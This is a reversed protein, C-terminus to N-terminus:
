LEEILANWTKVGCIGDQTLGAKAQFAKIASFMISDCRNKVSTMYGLKKLKRSLVTVSAGVTGYRVTPLFSTYTTYTGTTNPKIARWSTNRVDIHIYGGTGENYSGVEVGGSSGLISHAYMAVALPDVGKVAIDAALGQTHLSKYSGGIKRNYTPTRYGSNITVAKKFKTRIKQLVQVLEQSILIEDSGDKCAFEKVTFNTSLKEAGDNKKSYRIVAM